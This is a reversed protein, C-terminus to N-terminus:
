PMYLLAQQANGSGSLGFFYGINNIETSASCYINSPSAACSSWTNTVPDYCQNSTKNYYGGVIYIKNNLVVTSAELRAINATTKNSWTDTVPDYCQNYCYSSSNSGGLVYIMNNVIGSSLQERASSMSAKSSWTNTTTDYCENLASRVASTTGGGIAYIYHKYPECVLNYRPTIMTAKTSWSDNITDYCQHRCLTKEGGIIYIFRGIVASACHSPAYNASPMSTKTKWSNTFVDYVEYVLLNSSKYGGICYIQGGVATATLWYRATPMNTCSKWTNNAYAGIWSPVTGTNFLGGLLGHEM